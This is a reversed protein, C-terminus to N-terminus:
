AVKAKNTVVREEKEVISALILTDYFSAGLDKHKSYVKKDFNTLARSLISTM